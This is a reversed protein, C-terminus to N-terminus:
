SSAGSLAAAADGALKDFTRNAVRVYVIALSWSLLYNGAILLFGLNFGGVIKLGTVGKAFGALVTLGIYGIVFIITMPVLYRLKEAILARIAAHAANPARDSPALEGPVLEGPM